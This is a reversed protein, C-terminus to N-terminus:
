AILDCLAVVIARSAALILDEIPLGDFHYAGSATSGASWNGLYTECEREDMECATSELCGSPSCGQLRRTPMAAALLLGRGETGNKSVELHHLFSTWGSPLKAESPSFQLWFKLAVNEM